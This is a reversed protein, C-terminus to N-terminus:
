HSIQKFEIGVIIQMEKGREENLEDEKNYHWNVQLNELMNEKKFLFLIKLLYKATTSNYYTLNIDVTAQKAGNSIYKIIWNIIPRYFSSADEMYSKGDIKVTGTISDLHVHPTDTSETLELNEM